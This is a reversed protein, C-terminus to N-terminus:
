DAEGHAAAGPESPAGDLRTLLIRCNQCFFSEARRTSLSTSFFKHAQDMMLGGVRRVSEETIAWGVDRFDVGAPLWYAAKDAQGYIHGLEMETHCYPCTM